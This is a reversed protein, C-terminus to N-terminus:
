WKRGNLLAPEPYQKQSQTPDINSTEIIHRVSGLLVQIAFVARQRAANSPQIGNMKNALADIDQYEDVLINTMEALWSLVDDLPLRRYRMMIAFRMMGRICAIRTTDDADKFNIYRRANTLRKKVSAPSSELYIAVAVASLRNYLMSLEHVTPPTSKTFPVSGVPVALALLKTLKSTRQANTGDDPHCDKLAQVILKLFLEFATDSPQYLTLLQLDNELMFSPFDSAERRLNAFKRSRFISALQNFMTSADDIRWHWRNCLIFCRSAILWIYEDRKDLIRESLVKDAEPDAALRIHKLAFAVLEWSAPLRCISTTMGHVSFQSLACTSFITRWITESTELSTHSSGDGQQLTLQIIRWFPHHQTLNSENSIPVHCNSVLHFLCIWLEATREPLSSTDLGDDPSALIPELTRQMGYDHLRRALLSIYKVLDKADSTLEPQSKHMSCTFRAMSEIAFWYVTLVMNNLPTGDSRFADERNEIHSILKLLQEELADVLTTCEEGNSHAPLWSLLQCVTRLIGEWQGVSEATYNEVVSGFLFNLLGDVVSVLSVALNSASTTPGLEIDHAGYSNPVTASDEGSILGVLEYLWGRGIYTHPKFTTGSPLFHIEFDVKIDRRHHEFEHQRAAPPEYSYNDTDINIPTIDSNITTGNHYDRGAAPKYKSKRRAPAPAAPQARVSAAGDPSLARHFGEDEVDITIASEIRRRGSTIHTNKSTFVYVQPNLRKNKKAKMKAAAVAAATDKGGVWHKNVGPEPHPENDDHDYMDVDDDVSLRRSAHSRHGGGGGGSRKGSSHHKDFSLLTQREKQAGSTVVNLRGVQPGGVRRASGKKREREKRQRTKGLGGVTRTRTLMWDVLSEERLWRRSGSGVGPSRCSKDGLWANIKADDVEDDSSSQSESESAVEIVGDSIDIVHDAADRYHLQDLSRKSQIKPRGVDLDLDLDSSYMCNAEPEPESDESETDGRINGVDKGRGIRVRTKGPLLPGEEVEEEDDEAAHSTSRQRTAESKKQQQQAKTLLQRAMAAPMMRQLAKLRKRDKSTMEDSDSSTETNSDSDPTPHPRSPPKNQEEDSHPRSGPHPAPSQLHFADDQYDFGYDMGMGDGDADGM